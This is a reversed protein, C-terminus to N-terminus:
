SLKSVTCNLRLMVGILFGSNRSVDLHFRAIMICDGSEQRFKPLSIVFFGAVNGSVRKSFTLYNSQDLSVKKSSTSRM